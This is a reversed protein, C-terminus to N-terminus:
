PKNRPKGKTFQGMQHKMRNLEQEIETDPNASKTPIKPTTSPPLEQKKEKQNGSVFVLKWAVVLLALGIILPLLYYSLMLLIGLFITLFHSGIVAIALGIIVLLLFRTSPSM